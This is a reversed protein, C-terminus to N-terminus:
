AVNGNKMPVVKEEESAQEKIFGVLEQKSENSIKADELLKSSSKSVTTINDPDSMKDMVLIRSYEKLELAKADLQEIFSHYLDNERAILARCHEESTEAEALAKEADLINAQLSVREKERRSLKFALPNSSFYSLVFSSISTLLPIVGNFVAAVLIVPHENEVDTSTVLSDTLTSSTGIDFSLDRTYVRFVFSFIFAVVFVSVSLLVSIDKENKSCLGQHYKKLVFAAIALPVDLAVACASAIIWVFFSSETQVLNWVVKLCYWDVLVFFAVAIYNLVTWAYITEPKNLNSIRKARTEYSDLGFPERKEKEKLM